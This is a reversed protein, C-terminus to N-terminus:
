GEIQGCNAEGVEGRYRLDPGGARDWLVDKDKGWPLM